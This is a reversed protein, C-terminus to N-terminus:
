RELSERRRVAADELFAKGNWRWIEHDVSSPCCAGDGPLSRLREVALAGREITVARIGGLGRDGGPISGLQVAQGGRVGYVVVSTFNGSGGTSLMTLIAAEEIGDGTVDGFVPDGVKFFGRAQEADRHGPDIPVIEGKGDHGFEFVGGRVAYTDGREGVGEYARNKWDIARVSAPESEAEGRADAPAADPKARDVDGAPGTASPASPGRPHACADSVVLVLGVCLLRDPRLSM